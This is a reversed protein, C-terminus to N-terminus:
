YADVLCANVSGAYNVACGLAYGGAAAAAILVPKALKTAVKTIVSFFVAACAIKTIKGGLSCMGWVAKKLKGQADLVAKLVTYSAKLVICPPILCEKLDDAAKDICDLYAKEKGVM